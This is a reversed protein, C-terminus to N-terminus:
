TRRRARSPRTRRRASASHGSTSTATACSRSTAGASSSPRARLRARARVRGDLRPVRARRQFREFYREIFEKAEAHAIKLQRSLAHAGQGYITAFNITKARARMESTVEDLPVDFILAATQRHIDGGSKSRRCSRRIAPCTRSCACSSRRTTPPSFCGARRASHLRPSHRPRARPPDPHEPPESREVLAAGDGRGDPQVVHAAAGHASEGARAARRPVHERAELARSVGDAARAARTRRRRAGAARERRDLARDGDAQAGAAALQEFLIERLQPNSNINFEGGAAAYIEQEVRERERAFREKLSAFWALDIAIGAWEMEALVGVLPMEVDRYLEYIQQAELQPEFVSSAAALTMDADECSYDRACSSRCWTSRSSAAKGQRLSGRVDDDHPRPVRARASRARALAPGSRARLERADHRLGLGRLTIGARRLVLLDYKANQASRRRGSGRAARPAAGDSSRRAASPEERAARRGRARAGRHENARRDERAKAARSSRSPRTRKTRTAGPRRTAEATDGLLLDGQAPRSARHALPLTSRRARDSRSRSRWSRRGCRISKRRATRSSSRRPTSPSTRRRRARTRDHARAGSRTSPRRLQTAPRTTEATPEPAGLQTAAAITAAVDGLSRALTHFELEVFLQRLAVHGARAGADRRARAHAPSRRSDHSTGELPAGHDAQELLAERPRKKTLTPAAALIAELDGFEHVLERATKDGIGKVGPVNDSSDGVLALYDTVHEPPVGLREDGNEVCVWQEEVSAPGGRGPNLLWVGAARAAPLGQRGLRDRREIGQESARDRSRASSTTPRTARAALPDSHPVGRPAPLHAGHRSRLRVAARRDAERADGQVRSLARPPVVTGLRAGLRPLGPQPERPAAAPLQRHGVRGVHERRPQDHAPPLDARLVRSLDARLRRRPLPATAGTLAALATSFTPDTVACPPLLRQRVHAIRAGCAVERGRRM